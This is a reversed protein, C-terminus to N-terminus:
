SSSSDIDGFPCLLTQVPEKQPLPQMSELSGVMNPLLM